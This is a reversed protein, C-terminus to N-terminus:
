SNYCSGQFGKGKGKPTDKGKGNSKGKGKERKGKGVAALTWHDAIFQEASELTWDDWSDGYNEPAQAQQLGGSSNRKGLEKEMAFETIRVRLEEHKTVNRCQFRINDKTKGTLMNKLATFRFEDTLLQTEGM